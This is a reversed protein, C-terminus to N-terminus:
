IMEEMLLGISPVEIANSKTKGVDTKLFSSSRTEINKSNSQM